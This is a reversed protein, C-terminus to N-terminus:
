GSYIVQTLGICHVPFDVPTSLTGPLNCIVPYINKCKVVKPKGNAPKDNTEPVTTATGNTIVVTGNTKPEVQPVTIIESKATNNNELSTPSCNSSVDEVIIRPAFIISLYKCASIPNMICKITIFKKMADEHLLFFM